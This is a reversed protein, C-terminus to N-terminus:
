DPHALNWAAMEYYVPWYKPECLSRIKKQIVLYSEKDKVFGMAANRPIGLEPAIKSIGQLTYSDLPVDMKELLRWREDLPITPLKLIHKVTLNILKIARGFGIDHLDNTQKLWSTALDKAGCIVVQQFEECTEAQRLKPLSEKLWETAWQRYIGSPTVHHVGVSAFRFARFTSHDVSIRAVDEETKFRERDRTFFEVVARLNEESGIAAFFSTLDAFVTPKQTTKGVTPIGEMLQIDLHILKRIRDISTSKIVGLRDDFRMIPSEQQALIQKLEEFRDETSATWNLSVDSKLFKVSVRFDGPESFYALYEIFIQNM